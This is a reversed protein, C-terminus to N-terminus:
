KEEISIRFQQGSHLQLILSMRLPDDPIDDVVFSDTVFSVGRFDRTVNNLFEGIGTRREQELARYVWRGVELISAPDKKAHEQHPLPNSPVSM